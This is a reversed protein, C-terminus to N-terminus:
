NNVLPEPGVFFLLDFHLFNEQGSKHSGSESEAHGSAVVVSGFLHNIGSSLSLNAFMLAMVLASALVGGASGVVALGTHVTTGLVAAFSLSAFLGAALLVFTAALAVLAASMLVLTAAFAVFAALVVVSFLRFFHSHFGHRAEKKKPFHLCGHCERGNLFFLSCKQSKIKTYFSYSM